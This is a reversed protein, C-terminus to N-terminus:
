KSRVSLHEEIRAVIKDKREPGVFRDVERGGRLLIVTPVSVVGFRRAGEPTEEVYAKLLGVRGGYESAIDELVPDLAKCPNCWSAGFDLLTLDRRQSLEQDLNADTVRVVEM